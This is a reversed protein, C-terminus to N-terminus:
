ARHEAPELKGADPLIGVLQGPDHIIVPLHQTCVRFSSGRYELTVLPVVDSGRECLICLHDNM